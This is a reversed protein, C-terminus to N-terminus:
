MYYYRRLHRMAASAFQEHSVPSIKNQHVNRKKIFKDDPSFVM